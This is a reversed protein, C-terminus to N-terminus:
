GMEWCGDSEGVTREVKKGHDYVKREDSTRAGNRGPGEEKEKISGVADVGYRM